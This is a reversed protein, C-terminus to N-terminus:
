IQTIGPLKGSNIADPTKNASVYDFINEDYTFHIIGNAPLNGKNEWIIKYQPM